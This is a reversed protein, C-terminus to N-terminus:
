PHRVLVMPHPAFPSPIQRRMGSPRQSDASGMGRRGAHRVLESRMEYGASGRGLDPSLSDLAERCCANSTSPWWRKLLPAPPCTATRTHPASFRLARPGRSASRGRVRRPQKLSASRLSRLSNRSPAALGLMAPCDSRLASRRLRAGRGAWGRRQGVWGHTMQITPLRFPAVRPPGERWHVDGPKV